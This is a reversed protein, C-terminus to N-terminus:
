QCIARRKESIKKHLYLAIGALLLLAGLSVFVLGGGGGSPLVVVRTSSVQLSNTIAALPDLILIEPWDLIITGAFRARFVYSLTDTRQATANSFDMVTSSSIKELELLGRTQINTPCVLYANTAALPFTVIITNTLVDGVALQTFSPRTSVRALQASASSAAFLCCALVARMLLSPM